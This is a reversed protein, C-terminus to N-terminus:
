DLSVPAGVRVTLTRRRESGDPRRLVVEHTGLPITIAPDPLTGRSEGDVLVEAGDEDTVMLPVSPLTV